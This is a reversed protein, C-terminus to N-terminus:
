PAASADVQGVGELGGAPELLKDSAEEHRKCYYAIITIM